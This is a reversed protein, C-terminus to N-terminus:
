QEDHVKEKHIRESIELSLQDCRTQADLLAQAGQVQLADLQKIKRELESKAHEAQGFVQRARDLFAYADRWQEYLEPAVIKVHLLELVQEISRGERRAIQRGQENLAFGYFMPGPGSYARLEYRKGQHEIWKVQKM